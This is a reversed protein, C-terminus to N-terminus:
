SIYAYMLLQPINARMQGEDKSIAGIINTNDPIMCTQRAPDCPM